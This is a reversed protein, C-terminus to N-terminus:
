PQGERLKALAIEAMARAGDGYPTEAIEELTKVLEPVAEPNLGECAEICAQIHNHKKVSAASEKQWKQDVADRRAKVAVPDHQKCYGRRDREVVSKRSCYHRYWGDGPPIVSCGGPKQKPENM